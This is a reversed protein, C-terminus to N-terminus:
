LGTTLMYNSDLICAKEFGILSVSRPWVVLEVNYFVGNM